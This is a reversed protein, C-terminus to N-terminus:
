SRTTHIMPMPHEVSVPRCAAAGVTGGADYTKAGCHGLVQAADTGHAHCVPGGPNLVRLLLKAGHLYVIRERVHDVHRQQLDSDTIGPLLRAPQEPVTEKKSLPAEGEIQTPAEDAHPVGHAGRVYGLGPPEEFLEGILGPLSLHVERVPRPFGREFPHATRPVTVAVADHEIGIRTGLFDFKESLFSNVCLRLPASFSVWPSHNKLM